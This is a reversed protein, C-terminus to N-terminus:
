KIYALITNWAEDKGQGTEASFPIVPVTKSVQLTEKIAKV